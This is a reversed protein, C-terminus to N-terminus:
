YLLSIVILQILKLKDKIINYSSFLPWTLLDVTMVIPYGVWKFILYAIPIKKSM